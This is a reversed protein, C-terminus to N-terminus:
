YDYLVDIKIEHMGNTKDEVAIICSAKYQKITQLDMSKKIHYYISVCSSAHDLCNLTDDIM